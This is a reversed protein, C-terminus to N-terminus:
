NEKFDLYKLECNPYNEKKLKEGLKGIRDILKRYASNVNSAMSFLKEEDM